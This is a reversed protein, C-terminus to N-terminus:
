QVMILVPEIGLTEQIRQQLAMSEARTSFEGIMVRHVTKGDVTAVRLAIEEDPNQLQLKERLAEANYLEVFSGVMLTMKSSVSASKPQRSMGFQLQTQETSRNGAIDQVHLKCTYIANPDVQIESLIVESPPAGEGEMHELRTNRADFLELKWHDLPNIDWAKVGIITPTKAFLELTTPILDVAVTETDVFHRAGQADLVHLRAEYNGDPVLNGTDTTGDWVIGGELVGTGSKEWISETYEDLINLQWQLPAAGNEGLRLRFTTSDSVGDGNPSIAPESPNLEGDITEPDIELTAPMLITPAKHTDSVETRTTAVSVPTMDGEGWRLTASIWHVGQELESGSVYAYDLQGSSNRFSLGRALEGSWFRESATLATYGLRLGIHGDVFWHEAGFHLRLREGWDVDNQGRVALDASFLTNGAVEYTTGFRAALPAGELLVGNERIGRSLESFNVGLKVSDGWKQLPYAFQMGLDVSWLFNTRIPTNNQYYRLNAGASARQGLALGYGLLVIQTSEITDNKWGDLWTAFSVNGVNRNTMGFTQPNAAVSFAQDRSSFNGPFPMGGMNVEVGEMFGLSSPNWLFGNTASPGATFASGMGVARASAGVFIDRQSISSTGASVSVAALMMGVIGIKQVVRLLRRISGRLFNFQM